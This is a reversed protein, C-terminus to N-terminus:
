CLECDEAIKLGRAKNVAVTNSKTMVIKRYEESNEMIVVQKEQSVYAARIPGNQTSSTDFSTGFM